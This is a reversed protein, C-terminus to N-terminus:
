GGLLPRLACYLLSAMLASVPLTLIWAIFIHGAIGWRVASARQSAGVGMISSSIVHTTSVPAHFAHTAVQIVMAGATEAAFGHIPKLKIIKQGMTKIIRWGGAATGLAMATACTLIVWLPIVMGKPGQAIVVSSPGPHQAYYSVLAMTIIGMAKQADNSGHSFAMSSASILQLRRFLRNVSSPASRRVMWLLLIMMVFGGALGFLPSLILATVVLLVGETNVLGWLTTGFPDGFQCMRYCLAAGVIGGVLAHSSSSPIGFYWTILNWIIAGGVACLVVTQTISTPDAIGGGIMAAVGTGAFAGGFNCIAALFIATRPTLVNTSVVTAIANATDHFGNVYDFIVSLVIVSVLLVFTSDM